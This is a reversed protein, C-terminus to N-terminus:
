HPSSVVYYLSTCNSLSNCYHSGAPYFLWCMKLLNQFFTTFTSSKTLSTCHVDGEHANSYTFLPPFTCGYINWAPMINWPVLCFFRGSVALYNHWKLVKYWDKSYNSFKLYSPDHQSWGFRTLLLSIIKIGCACVLLNIPIMYTHWDVSQLASLLQISKRLTRMVKSKQRAM